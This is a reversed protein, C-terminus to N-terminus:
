ESAQDSDQCGPCYGEEDLEWSRWYFGCGKCAVIEQCYEDFQRETAGPPMFGDKSM